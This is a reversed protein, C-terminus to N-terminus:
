LSARRPRVKRKYRHNREAISKNVVALAAGFYITTSFHINPPPTTPSNDFKNEPSGLWQLYVHGCCARGITPLDDMSVMCCNSRSGRSKCLVATFYAECQQIVFLIHHTSADSKSCARLISLQRWVCVCLFVWSNDHYRIELDHASHYFDSSSRVTHFPTTM